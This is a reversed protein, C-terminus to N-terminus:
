RPEIRTVFYRDGRQEVDFAIRSGPALGELLRPDSATFPMTMATMVGPIDGHEITIQAKAPDIAVVQGEGTGRVSSTGQCASFILLLAALACRIPITM